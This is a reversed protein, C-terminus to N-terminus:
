VRLPSRDAGEGGVRRVPPTEEPAAVPPVPFSALVTTGQGPASELELAGGLAEIRERMGTLGLRGAPLAAPNFGVGDDEICLSLRPGRRTLLVGVHGAGAHKAINTLSEQVVRYVAAAVAPSACGKNLGRILLDVQVGFLSSWSEVHRSVAEALGEDGLTPPHLSFVARDLETDAASVLAELTVLRQRMPALRRSDRAHGLALRMACLQQGVTDHLERAIRRREEEILAMANARQLGAEARAPGPPFSVVGSAAKLGEVLPALERIESTCRVSQRVLALSQTMTDLLRSCLEDGNHVHGQRRQVLAQQQEVLAQARRVQAPVAEASHMEGGKEM